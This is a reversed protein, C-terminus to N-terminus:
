WRPRDEIKGRPSHPTSLCTSALKLCWLVDITPWPCKQRTVNFDFSVPFVAVITVHVSGFAFLLHHSVIILFLMWRCADQGDVLPMRLEVFRCYTCYMAVVRQNPSFTEGPRIYDCFINEKRIEKFRSSTKTSHVVEGLERTVTRKLTGDIHWHYHM